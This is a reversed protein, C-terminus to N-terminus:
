NNTKRLNRVHNRGSHSILVVESSRGSQNEKKRSSRQNQRTRTVRSTNSMVDFEPPSLTRQPAISGLNVCEQKQTSCPSKYRWFADSNAKGSVDAVRVDWFCLHFISATVVSLAKNAAHFHGSVGINSRYKSLSKFFIFWLRPLAIAARHRMSSGPDVLSCHTQRHARTRANTQTIPTISHSSDPRLTVSVNEVTGLCSWSLNEERDNGSRRDTQWVCVCVCLLVCHIHCNPSGSQLSICTRSHGSQIIHWEVFLTCNHLSM